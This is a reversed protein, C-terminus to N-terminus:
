ELHSGFIAELEGLMKGDITFTIADTFANLIVMANPGADGKVVTLVRSIFSQNVESIDQYIQALGKLAWDPTKGKRSALYQAMLYMSIIRFQTEHMNAFPLHYRILPRLKKMIPCGSSVMLLGVLGSLAKQLPVEKEYNRQETEVLVRVKDYSISTKFTEVADAVAVAAPCRPSEEEKLPCNSCKRNSLVTWSPAKKPDMGTLQLTKRELPIVFEKKGGEPLTITYKYTLPSLTELEQPPTM